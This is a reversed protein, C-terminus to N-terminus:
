SLPNARLADETKRDLYPDLAPLFTRLRRGSAVCPARERDFHTETDLFDADVLASFLMRIFFACGKEDLDRPGDTPLAADLVSTPAGGRKATGLMDNDRARQLRDLLSGQGLETSSWDTLGAHHGAICWALLRGNGTGLREIAYLAGAISHEPGRVTQGLPADAELHGNEGGVRSLTSNSHQITNEWITGFVLSPGGNRRLM